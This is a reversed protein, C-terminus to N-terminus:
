PADIFEITLRRLASFIHAISIDQELTTAIRAKNPMSITSNRSIGQPCLALINRKATIITM